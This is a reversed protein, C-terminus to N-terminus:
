LWRDRWPDLGRWAMQVLRLRSGFTTTPARVGAHPTGVRTFAKRKPPHSFHRVSNEIPSRTGFPRWAARGGGSEERRDM